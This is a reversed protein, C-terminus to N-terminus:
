PREKRKLKLRHIARYLSSPSVGCLFSAAQVSKGLQWYKIADEVQRSIRNGM